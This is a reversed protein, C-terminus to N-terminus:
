TLCLKRRFSALCENLINQLNRSLFLEDLFELDRGTINGHIRRQQPVEIMGQTVAAEAAQLNTSVGFYMRFKTLKYIITSKPILLKQSIARIALDNLIEGLIGYDRKEFRAPGEFRGRAGQELGPSGHRRRAVAGYKPPEGHGGQDVAAM